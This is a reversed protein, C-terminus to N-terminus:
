DDARSASGVVDRIKRGVRKVLWVYEEVPSTRCSPGDDVDCAEASDDRETMTREPTTRDTM